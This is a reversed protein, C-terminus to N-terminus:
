ISCAVDWQNASSSRALRYCAPLGDHLWDLFVEEHDCDNVCVFAAGLSEAASAARGTKIFHAAWAVANSCGIKERYSCDKYPLEPCRLAVEWDAPEQGTLLWVELAETTRLLGEEPWYRTIWRCVRVMMVQTVRPHVWKLWRRWRTPRSSKPLWRNSWAVSAARAWSTKHGPLSRPRAAESFWGDEESCQNWLGQLLGAVRRCRTESLNCM